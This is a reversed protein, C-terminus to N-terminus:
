RQIKILLLSLCGRKTCELSLNSRKKEEKRNLRGRKPLEARPKKENEEIKRQAKKDKKVEHFPRMGEM